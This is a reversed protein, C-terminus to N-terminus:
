QGGAAAPDPSQYWIVAESAFREPLVFAVAAGAIAGAIGLGAAIKWVKLGNFLAFLVGALVGALLGMIVIRSRRPNQPHVPLSAPDLFEGVKADVFQSVM